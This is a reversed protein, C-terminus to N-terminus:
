PYTSDANFDGDDHAPAKKRTRPVNRYEKAEQAATEGEANRHEAGHSGMRPMRDAAFHEAAHDRGKAHMAVYMKRKYLEDHDPHGADHASANTDIRRGTKRQYHANHLSAAVAQKVPHGAAVMEHINESIVKRSRGPKLPM